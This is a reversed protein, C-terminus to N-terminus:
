FNVDIKYFYIKRKESERPIKPPIPYKLIIYLIRYKKHKEQRQLLKYRDQLNDDNDDDDDDDDNGNTRCQGPWIKPNKPGEVKTPMMMMAMKDQMTRAMNKSKKQRM